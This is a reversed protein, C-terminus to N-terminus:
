LVPLQMKLRLSLSFLIKFIIPPINYQICFKLTKNHFPYQLYLQWLDNPIPKKWVYSFHLFDNVCDKAVGKHDFMMQLMRDEEIRRDVTSKSINNPHWRYYTLKEPIYAIFYKESIKLWRQYDEVLFKSHYEGTEKVVDTRMLATPASIRNNILLLERFELPPVIGSVNFDAFDPLFNSNEDVCFTDTHVMGYEKGKEELCQVSKELCEPHLYDDAAIFKVYEGNCLTIAENLVTALGTNKTHFIEKASVKNEHLWNKFVEVSNDQSADDAVILQWNSYTQSKLSDLMQNIFHAQNYSIVVVSVLPQDM